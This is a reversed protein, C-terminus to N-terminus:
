SSSLSLKLFDSWKALIDKEHRQLRPQYRSRRAMKVIGAGVASDFPHRDLYEVETTRTLHGVMYQTM